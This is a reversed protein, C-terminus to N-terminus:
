TRTPAARNPAARGDTAAGTRLLREVDPGSWGCEALVDRTHEGPRPAPPPTAAPTRGFRPAPAPQTGESSHQYTARARHHPHVAAETVTLVPTVCGETGDFVAAWADRGRSAFRAAIAKRLAPWSDRDTRDPLRDADLGLGDLLARYFREELAGVAVYGGDACAYVGYYPAGGDLLNRGRDHEWEGADAMGLLMGLLSATGDTIATDVVQGAGSRRREHLAALIGCVLFLGGGAFDGLLNVPPVPPGGAPGIAHLAGSLALYNIDHGPTLALPGDQGWGTMRAYVLGPNRRACCEPGLGLRETVGPRFGEVLVDSRAVLRLVTEVGDPHKLDLAMSRRGRDLVRHWSGFPREGGPRDIRVVDAGLDALLMCAYPAPGIGALEVVRLGSLPGGARSSEPPTILM